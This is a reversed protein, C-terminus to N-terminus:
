QPVAMNARSALLPVPVVKALDILENDMCEAWQAVKMSWDDVELIGLQALAHAAHDEPVIGMLFKFLAHVNNFADQVGYLDDLGTCAIDYASRSM